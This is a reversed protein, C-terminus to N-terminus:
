ASCPARHPVHAWAWTLSHSQIHHSRSVAVEVRPSQLPLAGLLLTLSLNLSTNSSPSCRITKSPPYWVHKIEWKIKSPPTSMSFKSKYTTNQPNASLVVCLTTCQNQWLIMTQPCPQKITSRWERSEWATHQLVNGTSHTVRVSLPVFWKSSLRGSLNTLIAAFWSHWLTLSLRQSIISLTFTSPTFTFLLLHSLSRSLLSLPCLYFPLSLLPQSLHQSLSLQSHKYQCM